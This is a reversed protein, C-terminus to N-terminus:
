LSKLMENMAKANNENVSNAKAERGKKTFSMIREKNLWGAKFLATILMGIAYARSAPSMIIWVIAVAATQTPTLKDALKLGKKISSSNFKIKKSLFSDIFIVVLVAFFEKYILGILVDGLFESM